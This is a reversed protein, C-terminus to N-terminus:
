SARQFENNDEWYYPRTIQRKRDEIHLCKKGLETNENMCELGQRVYHNRVHLSIDGLSAHWQFVIKHIFHKCFQWAGLTHISEQVATSVDFKNTEALDVCSVYYFAANIYEAYLM